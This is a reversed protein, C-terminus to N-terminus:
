ESVGVCPVHSLLLPVQDGNQLMRYDLLFDYEPLDNSLFGNKLLCAPLERLTPGIDQLILERFGGQFKLVPVPITFVRSRM